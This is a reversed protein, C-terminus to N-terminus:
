FQCRELLQLHSTDRVKSVYNSMQKIIEKMTADTVSPGKQLDHGVWLVADLLNKQCELVDGLGTFLDRSTRIEDKREKAQSEIAFQIRGILKLIDEGTQVPGKVTKTCERIWSLNRLPTPLQPKSPNSGNYQHQASGYNEDGDYQGHDNSNRYGGRGRGYRGRDGRGRGAYNSRGGWYQYHENEYGYQEYHQDYGGGYDNGFRNKAANCLGQFVEELGGQAESLM